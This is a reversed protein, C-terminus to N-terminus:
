RTPGDAVREGVVGGCVRVRVCWRVLVAPWVCVVLLFPLSFWLLFVFLRRLRDEPYVIKKVTGKRKNREAPPARRACALWRPEKMINGNILNQVRKIVSAM